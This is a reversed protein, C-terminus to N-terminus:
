LLPPLSSARTGLTLCALVDGERLRPQPRHGDRHGRVAAGACGEGREPGLCPAGVSLGPGGRCSVVARGVRGSGLWEGPPDDAVQDEAHHHRRRRGALAWCGRVAAPLLPCPAAMNSAVQCPGGARQERPATTRPRRRGVVVGMLAPPSPRPRSRSPSEGGRRPEARSPADPQPQRPPPPEHPRPQSAALAPGPRAAVRHPRAASSNTPRPCDAAAATLRRGPLGPRHSLHPRPVGASRRLSSATQRFDRRCLGCKGEKTEVFAEASRKKPM